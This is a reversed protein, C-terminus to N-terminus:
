SKMEQRCEEQMGLLGQKRLKVLQSYRRNKKLMGFKPAMRSDIVYEDVQLLNSLM